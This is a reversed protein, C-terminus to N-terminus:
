RRRIPRRTASELYFLHDGIRLGPGNAWNPRPVLDPNYYHTAGGTPDEGAYAREVLRRYRQYLASNPDLEEMQRRTGRREWATFQAPQFIVGEVTRGGFNGSLVRNRIAAAIALQGPERQNGAEGHMTRIILDM